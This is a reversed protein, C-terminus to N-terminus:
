FGESERDLGQKELREEWAKLFPLVKGMGEPYTSLLGKLIAEASEGDRFFRLIRLVEDSTEPKRCPLELLVAIEFRFDRLLHPSVSGLLVGDKIDILPPVGRRARLLSNTLIKYASPRYCHLEVYVNPKFHRLLVLVRRGLPTKYYEARLTSVYRRAVGLSPVLVLTGTPPPGEEGLRRLIPGTVRGEHGHLGGVILRGIGPITASLSLISRSSKM